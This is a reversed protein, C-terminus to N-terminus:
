SDDLRAIVSTGFAAISELQEDRTEGPLAVSAWEVGMEELQRISRLVADTDVTASEGMSLGEPIYAVTLPRSRGVSRALAHAYELAEALAELSEM